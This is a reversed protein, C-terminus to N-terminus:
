LNNESFYHNLLDLAELTKREIEAKEKNIASKEIASALEGLDPLDYSGASGKIKHAERRIRDFEDVKLSALIDQLVKPKTQLYKVQFEDLLNPKSSSANQSYSRVADIFADKKIPKSIVGDFLPDIKAKMNKDLSFATLAVLPPPFLNMQECFHRYKDVVEFGTMVPMDLDMLVLDYKKQKLLLLAIDGKEAFEVEFEYDKLFNSFVVRSDISDEAILVSISKDSSIIQSAQRPSQRILELEPELFMSKLMKFIRESGLPKQELVGFGDAFINNLPKPINLTIDSSLLFYRFSKDPVYKTRLAELKQICEDGKMGPMRYDVFYLQPCEDPINNLCQEIQSLCIDAASFVQYNTLGYPKLLNELIFRNTDSDDLLCVRQHSLCNKLLEKEEDIKTFNASKEFCFPISAIFTTGLGPESELYISGKMNEVLAKTITLGLGTGQIKEFNHKFDQSFSEFVEHHSEPHIGIGSDSVKITLTGLNGIMEDFTWECTMRVEGKYTFKIANSLLKMLIRGVHAEHGILIQPTKPDIYYTFELGKSYAGPAMLNAIGQIHKIFDFPKASLELEKSELKTIDLVDNIITMLAHNSRDFIEVYQAQKYTLETEKLLDIVGTIANMPTRIEHSMNALFRSKAKESSLASEKANRLEIEKFKEITIDQICLIYFIDSDQLHDNKLVLKQEKVYVRFFKEGEKEYSPRKLVAVEPRYHTFVVDSLYEKFAAFDWYGHDIEFFSNNSNKLESPKYQNEFAKNYFRVHLEDTLIITPIPISSLVSQLESERQSLERLIKSHKSNLLTISKWLNRIESSVKFQGKKPSYELQQGGNISEREIKNALFQIADSSRKILLFYFGLFALVFFLSSIVVKLVAFNSDRLKNYDKSASIVAKIKQTIEMKLRFAQGANWNKTLFNFAEDMKKAGLLNEMDRALDLSQESFNQCTLIIENLTNTGKPELWNSLPSNPTLSTKLKQCRDSLNTAEDAFPILLLIAVQSSHEPPTKANNLPEIIEPLSRARSIVEGMFLDFEEAFLELYGAPTYRSSVLENSNSHYKSELLNYNFYWLALFATGLAFAQTKLSWKSM